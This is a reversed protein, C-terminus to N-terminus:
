EVRQVLRWTRIPVANTPATWKLEKRLGWRKDEGANRPLIFFSPPLILNLFKCHHKIAISTVLVKNVVFSV